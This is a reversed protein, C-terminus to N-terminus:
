GGRVALNGPGIEMIPHTAFVGFNFWVKSGYGTALGPYGSLHLSAFDISGQICICTCTACDSGGSPKFKTSAPSVNDVQAFSHKALLFALLFVALSQRLVRVPFSRKM